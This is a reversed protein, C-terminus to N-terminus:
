PSRRSAEHSRRIVIRGIRVSMGVAVEEASVIGGVVNGQDRDGLALGFLIPDVLLALGDLEVAPVAAVQQVLEGVGGCWSLSGPMPVLLRGTLLVVDHPQEGSQPSCELGASAEGLVAPSRVQRVQPWTM